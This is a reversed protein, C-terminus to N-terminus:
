YIYTDWYNKVHDLLAKKQMEIGNWNQVQEETSVRCYIAVRKKQTNETTNNYM